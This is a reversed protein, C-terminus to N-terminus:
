IGAKDKSLLYETIKLEVLERVADQSKQIIEDPYSNLEAETLHGEKGVVALMALELDTAINVKSVGGGPLQAACVVMDSPVGSGGHLVLPVDTLRSIEELREYDVKPQRVTYVGHATGVSVALCDVGTLECFKKAEQPDTYLEEDTDTEVFDTTGIKGLEGEVTINRPHAMGAVKKTIEVNDDFKEESADIMVSTFGVDMAEVIVSISKTHDLHLAIPVQPNLEEVVRYFEDAFAKIGVQHRVVEKESLQVIVPSDTNVAAEIIPQILKTYRASFSGVAYRNGAAHKLLETLNVVKSM